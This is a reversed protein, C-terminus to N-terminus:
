LHQASLWLDAYAPPINDLILAMSTGANTKAAVPATPQGGSSRRSTRTQLQAMLDGGGGEGGGGAGANTAQWDAKAKKQKKKWAQPRSPAIVRRARM